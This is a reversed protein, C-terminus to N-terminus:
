ASTEEGRQRRREPGTYDQEDRRRRDPGFYDATRVYQRPVEIIARIRQFLQLASVPKALFETVGADRAETVREVETHGTLMIIPVYINPSDDDNRIRHTFQVGDMPSMKWDVIILDAEFEELAKFAEAGNEAEAVDLIGLVNIISKVLLRMHRNDDIIMVKLSELDYNAM